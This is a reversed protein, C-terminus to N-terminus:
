RSASTSYSIKWWNMSGGGAPHICFLPPTDGRPQIPIMPNWKQSADKKRLLVAMEEITPATFITTVPLSKNLKERIRTILHVALLSHGGLEFINDDSM